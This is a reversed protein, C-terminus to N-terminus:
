FLLVSDAKGIAGGVLLEHPWPRALHAGHKEIPEGHRRALAPEFDTAAGAQEGFHDEIDRPRSETTATSGAGAWSACAPLLGIARRAENRAPSACASGKPPPSNSTTVEASTNLKM